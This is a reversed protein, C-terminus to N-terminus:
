HLWIELVRRRRSLSGGDLRTAGVGGEVSGFIIRGGELSACQRVLLPLLRRNTLGVSSNLGDVFSHSCIRLSHLRKTLLHSAHDNTLLLKDIAQDNAQEAIAVDKEFTDRTERLREREFSECGRDTQM